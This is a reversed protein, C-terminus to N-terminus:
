CAHVSYTHKHIYTCHHRSTIDLMMVVSNDEARPMQNVSTFSVDSFDPAVRVSPSKAQPQNRPSSARLCRFRTFTPSWAVQQTEPLIHHIQAHLVYPRGAVRWDAVLLGSVIIFLGSRNEQIKLRM